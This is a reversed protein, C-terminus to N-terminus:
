HSLDYTHATVFGQPANRLYEVTSKTPTVKVRLYGSGGLITGDRYGYEPASRPERNGGPNGPQPVEQYVIGDLNQKAYLHDHGHFVISVRNQLLLQHIPAPWDPRNRRFSDKGDADKGGWEFLPAAESGGRGQTDVGGVLNHIFVFKFTAKSGELVQKLWSYQAAGLTRKWNDSQGGQRETYWFPDLVIFLANGWEWAYYDQLLGAEPHRNANAAYFDGPTPNPFYRKRMMNAWVALSDSGAGRGGPSEGDHNGLVLFLPASRCLSGFYFRQALYQRTAKQRTDHKETMFTDGLDIHFDPADALANLLTGQYLDASVHNDLHSDATITFTFSGGARRQTHFVGDICPVGQVRLQYLYQTDPELSDLTLEVPEDKAFRRTPTQEWSNASDRRWAILGESDQYFLVSLTVSAQTPRSLIVDAKRSPVLLCASNQTAQKGGQGRRPKPIEGPVLSPQVCLFLGLAIAAVRLSNM